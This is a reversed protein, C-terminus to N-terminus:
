PHPATWRAQAAQSRRPCKQAPSQSLGQGPQCRTKNAYAIAQLSGDVRFLRLGSLPRVIHADRCATLRQAADALQQANHRHVAAGLRRSPALCAPAATPASNTTTPVNTAVNPANSEPPMRTPKRM